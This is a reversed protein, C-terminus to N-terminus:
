QRLARRTISEFYFGNRCLVYVWRLRESSQLYPLLAQLWFLAFFTVLALLSATISAAVAGQLSYSVDIFTGIYPGGVIAVSGGLAIVLTSILISAISTSKQILTLRIGELAAICLFSAAVSASFTMTPGIGALHLIVPAMGFTSIVCGIGITQMLSQKIAPQRGVLLGSTLFAHAKYFAHGLMHLFAAGPVGLGLQLFMFGMQASTSHALRRKVDPTTFQTLGCIVVTLIGVVCMFDGAWHASHVLDYTRLILYGGSNIVGAHMLASVPTPAEMTEPLWSHFPFQASKTMAGIVLLTSMLNLNVEGSMQGALASLEGFNLTGFSRYLLVGAAFICIDGIRSIIFKKKAAFQAAPRMGYLTLLKHLAFSTGFWCLAFLALNDAITMALVSAVTLHGWTYFCKESADSRLYRQSFKFILMALVSIAFAFGTSLGNAFVGLVLSWHGIMPIEIFVKSSSGSTIFTVLAGLALLMALSSWIVPGNGFPRDAKGSQALAFGLLHALVAGLLTWVMTDNM